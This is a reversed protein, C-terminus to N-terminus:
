ELAENKGCPQVSIKTGALGQVEFVSQPEHHQPYTQKCFSETSLFIAMFITLGLGLWALIFSKGELRQVLEANQGM